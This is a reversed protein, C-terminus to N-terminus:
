GVWCIRGMELRFLRVKLAGFFFCSIAAHINLAALARNIGPGRSRETVKTV